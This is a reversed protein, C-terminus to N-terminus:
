LINLASIEAHKSLICKAAFPQLVSNEHIRKLRCVQLQFHEHIIRDKTHLGLVNSPWDLLRSHYRVGQASDFPVASKSSHNYAQYARSTTVHYSHVFQYLSIFVTHTSTDIYIIDHNSTSLEIHACNYTQFPQLICRSGFLENLEEGKVTFSANTWTWSSWSRVSAHQRGPFRRKSCFYLKRTPSCSCVRTRFVLNSTTSFVRKSDNIICSRILDNLHKNQVNNHNIPPITGEITACQKHHRVRPM